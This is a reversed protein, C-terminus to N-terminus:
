PHCHDLVVATLGHDGEHNCINLVDFLVPKPRFGVALGAVQMMARDNAGDGIAVAQNLAVGHIQCIEVLWNAKFKADVVPGDITGTFKGNLVGLDNAAFGTLGFKQALPGALQNFGGSVLFVPLHKAKGLAILKEMGRTVRLDKQVLELFQSSFGRLTAVRDRLATEFDIEGAMARETIENVRDYSGCRRALEVLTEEEVFTADMDFFLAGPVFDNPLVAFFGEGSTACTLFWEQALEMSSLTGTELGDSLSQRSECGVPLGRTSYLKFQMLRM